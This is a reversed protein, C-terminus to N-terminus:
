YNALEIRTKAPSARLLCLVFLCLLFIKLIMFLKLLIHTRGQYHSILQDTDIQSSLLQSNPLAGGTASNDLHKKFLASLSTLGTDSYLQPYNFSGSGESDMELGVQQDESLEEELLEDYIFADTQQSKISYM